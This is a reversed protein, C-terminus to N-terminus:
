AYNLEKYIKDVVERLELHECDIVVDAYKEYLPTREEYLDFLTQEERMSVGRDKLNGLRKQIAGFSLKLYIIIGSEKFHLMAAEGYVASGGTAIIHHDVCISSNIRNEIENFGDIGKEQILEQLRRGTEKQILLDSDLFDYGLKKALVVGITSKGAGPMGILIINDSKM